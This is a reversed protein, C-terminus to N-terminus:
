PTFDKWLTDYDYNEAYEYMSDIYLQLNEETVLNRGDRICEFIYRNYEPRHHAVDMYNDLNTIIEPEYQFYYVHVNDYQLFSQISHRYIELTEWLRGQLVKQEWYLMSYPPYFIYFQTEPHLEIFPLINNLNEDCCQLMGEWDVPEPESEMLQERTSQFFSLVIDKGFSKDDGWTYAKDINSERGRVGDVIREMALMIIDYNYLYPADTLVNGDYLYEPREVYATWAPVTLQYDNLDMVIHAPPVDRSYIQELIAHLDDSRAGSYSLKMTSWGLEEDFWSTRLNETMSTGMIASDYQLHSAAGSTQYVANELIVPLNFWVDHYHYFPDVCFVFSAIMIGVGVIYGLLCLFAKKDSM